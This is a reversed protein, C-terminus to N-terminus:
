AERKGSGMSDELGPDERKGNLKYDETRPEGPREREGYHSGLLSGLPEREGIFPDGLFWLLVGDGGHVRARGGWPAGLVGWVM